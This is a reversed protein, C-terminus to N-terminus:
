FKDMPLKPKTYIWTFFIHAAYFLKAAPAEILYIEKNKM